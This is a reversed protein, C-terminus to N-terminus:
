YISGISKHSSSSKFSETRRIVNKMSKINKACEAFNTHVTQEVYQGIWKIQNHLFCTPFILLLWSEVEMFDWVSNLKKSHTNNHM